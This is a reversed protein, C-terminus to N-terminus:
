GNVAKALPFSVGAQWGSTHQWNYSLIYQAGDDSQQVQSPAGLLAICEDLTHQQPVLLTLEDRSVERNEANSNFSISACGLTSIALFFPAIKIM